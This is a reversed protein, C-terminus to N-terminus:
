LKFAKGYGVGYYKFGYKIAYYPEIVRRGDVVIKRKVLRGLMDLNLKKFEPHDTVVVIVDADEAVEELTSAREAGFSENTYPDYVVVKAGRSLLERVIYKAPSERTDNVGGKYASGLVAIKTGALAFGADVLAREVIKVIHKPMYENIRRAIKILESGWSDSLLSTLMYPDKTLCPGGVGAGPIHINVRPHTNALRIAEYVDVGIKEAILALLNAYAINIDRYTNEILKVFEATTADTPLLKSNVKSYLEVAKETSRPGVGGVVRPANLLEEIARGPAIREPVHALYVEEEVRLESEGLLSKALGTTTGPPITSEIVVLLGKHLGRKVAELTNRLYSLDAVGGRVPTPVAIIVADSERVAEVTDTTARLIGKSVADRFMDALGPEHIYCKGSNVAEVRSVDVDVGLMGFGKNAFLVATPLGVYGLGIVVLKKLM